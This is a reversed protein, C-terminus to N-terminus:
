RRRPGPSGSASRSSPCVAPAFPTTAPSRGRWQATASAGRPVMRTVGKASEAWKGDPESTRTRFQCTRDGIKVSLTGAESLGAEIAVPQRSRAVWTPLPGTPAPQVEGASLSKIPEGTEVRVDRLVLTTGQALLPLHTVVLKNEDTKAFPTIDWVFHYPDTDAFGWPMPHTRVVDSFDPSYLVTWRGAKDWVFDVGNRTTFEVPKNLLQPGRLLHGNVHVTMWPNFGSLSPWDVRADLALRVQQGKPLPPLDFPLQASDPSRITQEKALLLSNIPQGIAACAVILSFGVSFVLRCCRPLFLTRM